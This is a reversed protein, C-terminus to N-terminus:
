EQSLTTLLQTKTNYKEETEKETRKMYERLHIQKEAM